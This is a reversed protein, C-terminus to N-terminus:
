DAFSLEESNEEEFEEQEEKNDPIIEAFEPDYGYGSLEGVKQSWEVVIEEPEKEHSIPEGIKVIIKGSFPRKCVNECGQIGVPLIDVGESKAIAVFGKNVISIPQSRRIGGQPFIGLCWKTKFVEKVTKITSIELKKRNVAFGGAWDALFRTKESEFLEKKAMFAIRRRLAIALLFPDFVSIHNGAVIYRINKRFNKRGQIELRYFIKFYPIAFFCVVAWYFLTTLINYDNAVKKAYNKGEKM